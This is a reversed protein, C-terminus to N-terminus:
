RFRRWLFICLIAGLTAVILQAPLGYAALGILRSLFGGVFAGVVGVILVFVLDDRGGMVRSAIFGAIGGIVLFLILEM